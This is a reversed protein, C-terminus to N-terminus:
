KKSSKKSQKNKSQKKTLKNSQKKAQKNKSQKKTLKNSQKKAQKNKSQKKTQKTAKKKPQKKAKKSKPSFYKQIYKMDRRFKMATKPHKNKNYIYLVNLKRVINVWGFKNVLKDLIKRREDKKISLSYGPLANKELHIKVKNGVITTPM